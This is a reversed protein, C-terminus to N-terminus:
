GSAAGVSLRFPTPRVTPECMEGHLLAEDAPGDPRSRPDNL